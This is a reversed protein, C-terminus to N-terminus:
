RGGTGAASQVAALPLYVKFTTEKGPASDVTFRGGHAEVIMRSQFMGIGMGNKKSSKFPKFLSNAMFEPTMGCGND